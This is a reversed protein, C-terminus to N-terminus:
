RWPVIFSQKAAQMMKENGDWTIDNGPYVGWLHSVHRHKNTTDDKDELWEQLQGYKGIQNPAIQKVKETLSKRFDADTNFAEAHQM